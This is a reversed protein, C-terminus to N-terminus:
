SCDKYPKLYYPPVERVCFTNLSLNCNHYCRSRLILTVSKRQRQHSMLEQHLFDHLGGNVNRQTYLCYRCYFVSQGDFSFLKFTKGEESCEYLEILEECDKLLVPGSQLVCLFHFAVYNYNYPVIYILLERTQVICVLVAHVCTCVQLVVCVVHVCVCARVCVRVCACVVCSCLWVYYCLSACQM